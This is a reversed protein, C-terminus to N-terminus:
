VFITRCKVTNFLNIFIHAFCQKLGNEYRYMLQGIQDRRDNMQAAMM